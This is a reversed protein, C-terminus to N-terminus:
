KLREHSIIDPNDGAQSRVKGMVYRRIVWLICRWRSDSLWILLDVRALGEDLAEKYTGDMLWTETKVIETVHRQLVEAPVLEGDEWAYRDLHYTPIQLATGINM